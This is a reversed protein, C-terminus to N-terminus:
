LNCFYQYFHLSCFKFHQLDYVPQTKWSFFYFIGVSSLWTSRWLEVILRKLLEVICEKRQNTTFNVRM